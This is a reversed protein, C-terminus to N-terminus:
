RVFDPIVGSMYKLAEEFVPMIEAHVGAVHHIYPGYILKKEIEVWNDFEVWVYTGRTKPGDTGNGAAAFFCYKGGGGDFRCISIGGGKIEWECAGPCASDLIYHKSVRSDTGEKKLDLPFPGCHWLLEANDNQPHRITVDAFFVPTRGMVAAQALAATIAGHIDTECAIPLSEETLESNIYCPMIGFADQMASWCQIACASLNEREAWEKVVQKFAAMKEISADAIGPCNVRRKIRDAEAKIFDPHEKMIRNMESGIEILTTPVVNINFRELLEAENAMVTWFGPPRTGIQGIRLSNFTKVVNVAALFKDFGSKFPAADLRCNEIYTFPVGMRNLIKSTAFLGCQTDRLRTGDSLPMEDRPGWLLVPKNLKKALDAVADETGFNCHPCFLADVGESDFRKAISDVDASTYLLGEENLWELGIFDVKWEALKAKIMEKYTLADERSFIDRRTPAFGIKISSKM